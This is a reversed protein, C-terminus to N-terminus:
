GSAEAHELAHALAYEAASAGAADLRAGFGRTKREKKSDIKICDVQSALVPDITVREDRLTVSSKM